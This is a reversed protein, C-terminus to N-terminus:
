KVSAVTTAADLAIRNRRYFTVLRACAAFATRANMIATDLGDRPTFCETRLRIASSKGTQHLTMDPDLLHAVKDVFIHLQADSFTLDMHGRDGKVSVYIRHPMTPMDHPRFNIWTSDKTVKLPKMELIPFEAVAMEYAASWFAETADDVIREWNNVRRSSAERLFLARYRSRPTDADTLLFDAIEEFSVTADFEKAKLSGALYFEPACLITTYDRYKGHTVDREARLRYRSAQDPQLPADIKDEVLVALQIGDQSAYTVILDSEGINDSMSVLVDAFEASIDAFRTKGKFWEAFAISVTIEEALLLDIDREYKRTVPM